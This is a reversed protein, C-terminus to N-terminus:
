PLWINYIRSYSCAKTFYDMAFEMVKQIMTQKTNFQIQVCKFIQKILNISFQYAQSQNAWNDCKCDSPNVISAYECNTRANPYLDHLMKLIIKHAVKNIGSV